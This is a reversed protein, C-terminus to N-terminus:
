SVVENEHYRAAMEPCYSQLEAVLEEYGPMDHVAAEVLGAKDLKAARHWRGSLTKRAAPQNGGLVARLKDQNVRWEHYNDQLIFSMLAVICLGIIAIIFIALSTPEQYQYQM